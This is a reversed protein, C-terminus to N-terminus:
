SEDPKPPWELLVEGDTIKTKEYATVAVRVPPQLTPTGPGLNIEVTHIFVPIVLLREQPVTTVTTTTTNAIPLRSIYVESAVRTTGWERAGVLSEENSRVQHSAAFAAMVTPHPRPLDAFRGYSKFVKDATTQTFVITRGWRDKNIWHTL